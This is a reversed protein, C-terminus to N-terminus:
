SQFDEHRLPRGALLAKRKAQSVIQVLRACSFGQTTSNTSLALGRAFTSWDQDDSLTATNLHYQFIQTRAAEDPFNIMYNRGLRGDRIVAPDIAKINNTTGITLYRPKTQTEGSVTGLFHEVFSSTWQESNRHPLLGSIEDILIVRFQGEPVAFVETINKETNGVWKNKLSGAQHERYEGGLLEAIAKGITTKGMGPPGYLLIGADFSLKQLDEGRRYKRWIELDDLLEQPVGFIGKSEFFAKTTIEQAAPETTKKVSTAQSSESSSTSEKQTSGSGKFCDEGELCCYTILGFLLAGGGISASTIGAIFFQYGLLGQLALLVVGTIALAVGLAWTLRDIRCVSRGNWCKETVPTEPLAASDKSTNSSSPTPTTM